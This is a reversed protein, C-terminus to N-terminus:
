LTGSNWHFHNHSMLFDYLCLPEIKFLGLPGKIGGPDQQREQADRKSKKYVKEKETEDRIKHPVEDIHVPHLM